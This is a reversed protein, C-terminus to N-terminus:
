AGAVDGGQECCKLTVLTIDDSQEADGIFSRIEWLVAELLDKASLHGYHDVLRILPELGNGAFFDGKLNRAETIGDTYLLLSDGPELSISKDELRSRADAVLGLAIGGSRIAESRREGGRYVILHEHGAGCYSLRSTDDDWNLMLASMFMERRTDAYLLRNAEALIDRSSRGRQALARFHARAMVMVLGAPVGKGSVDGICIHLSGDDHSMFDFYDGGLEKAPLMKGYVALRKSRPLKRPLLQRQITSALNLEYKMREKDAMEKILRANEIALAAQMAIATLLECDDKSFARVQEITDLHIIGLVNQDWILPVCLASRIGQDAISLAMNIRQDMQADVSLISERTRLVEKVITRSVKVKQKAPGHRLKKAMTRLRRQSGDFLLVTGRDAPLVEFILDLLEDLLRSLDHITSIKSAVKFLTAIRSEDRIGKLVAEHDEFPKHRYAIQAAEEVEEKPISRTAFLHDTEAGQPLAMIRVNEGTSSVPPVVSQGVGGPGPTAFANMNTSGSASGDSVSDDADFIMLTERTSILDGHQLVAGQVTSGNVQLLETTQLNHLEFGGAGQRIMLQRARLDDGHSFVLSDDQWGLVNHPGLRFFSGSQPGEILILRPM